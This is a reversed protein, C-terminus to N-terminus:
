NINQKSKNWCKGSVGFHLWLFFSFMLLFLYFYALASVVLQASVAFLSWGSGNGSAVDTDVPAAGFSKDCGAKARATVTDCGLVDALKGSGMEGDLSRKALAM